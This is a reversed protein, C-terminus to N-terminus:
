VLCQPLTGRLTPVNVTGLHFLYISITLPCTAMNAPHALSMRYSYLISCFELSEAQEPYVLNNRRAHTRLFQFTM